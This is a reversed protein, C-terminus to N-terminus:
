VCSGVQHLKVFLVTADRVDGSLALVDQLEQAAEPCYHRLAGWGAEEEEGAAAAAAAAVGPEGGGGGAPAAPAPAPGTDALLRNGGRVTEGAYKGSM